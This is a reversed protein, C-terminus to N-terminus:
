FYGMVLFAVDSDAPLALIASLKSVSAPWISASHRFRNWLGSNVAIGGKNAGNLNTRASTYVEL